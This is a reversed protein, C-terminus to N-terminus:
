CSNVCFSTDVYTSPMDLSRIDAAAPSSGASPSRATRANRTRASRSSANCTSRARRSPQGHCCMASTSPTVRCATWLFYPFLNGQHEFPEGTVGALGDGVGVGVRLGDAGVVDARLVHQEPQREPGVGDGHAGESAETDVAVTERITALDVLVHGLRPARAALALALLVADDGECGGIRALRVNQGLGTAVDNGLSLLSVARSLAMAGALGAGMWPLVLLLQPWRVGQVGGAVYFLVDQAIRYYTILITTLAGLLASVIAGALALRVPSLGGPHASGIGYVMAAGLAAGALSAADDPGASVQLRYALGGAALAREVAVLRAGARPDAIVALDGFPSTM